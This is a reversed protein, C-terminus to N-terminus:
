KEQAGGITEEEGQRTPTSNILSQWWSWFWEFWVTTRSFWLWRRSNGV